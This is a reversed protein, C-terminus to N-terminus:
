IIDLGITKGQNGQCHEHQSTPTTTEPEGSTVIRVGLQCSSHTLYTASGKPPSGATKPFRTNMKFVVFTYREDKKFINQQAAM